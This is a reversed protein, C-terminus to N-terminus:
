PPVPSDPDWVKISPSPADVTTAPTPTTPSISPSDGKDTGPSDLTTAATVRADGDRRSEDNGRSQTTPAERRALRVSVERGRRTTPVDTKTALPAVTERVSPALPSPSPSASPSPSPSASPDIAGNEGSPSSGASPLGPNAPGTTPLRTEPNSFGGATGLPMLASQSARQWSSTMETAVLLAGLGVVTAAVIAVTRAPKRDERGIPSFAHPPIPTVTSTSADGFSGKPAAVAFADTATRATAPLSERLSGPRSGLHDALTKGSALAQRWETVRAGFLSELFSALSVPSIVLRHERAFSELDLQLGQTTAYRQNRDRRLSRMVIAEL